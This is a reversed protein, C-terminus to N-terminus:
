VNKWQLMADIKGGRSNLYTELQKSWFLTVLTESKDRLSSAAEVQDGLARLLCTARSIRGSLVCSSCLVLLLLLHLPAWSLAAKRGVREHGWVCSLIKKKKKVEWTWKSIGHFASADGLLARNSNRVRM